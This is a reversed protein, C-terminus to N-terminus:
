LSPLSHAQYKPISLKWSTDGGESSTPTVATSCGTPPPHEMPGAWGTSTSISFKPEAGAVPKSTQKSTSPGPPRTLTQSFTPARLM